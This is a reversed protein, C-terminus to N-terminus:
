AGMNRNDSWSDSSKLQRYESGSLEVSWRPRSGGKILEGAWFGLLVWRRLAEAPAGGELDLQLVELLQGIEPDSNSNHWDHILDIWDGSVSYARKRFAWMLSLTLVSARSVLGSLGPDSAEGASAEGQVGLRHLKGLYKIVYRLGGVTSALAEIDTFGHAWLGEVDRKEQVRWADGHHFAEFEQDKFLVVAHIHPYGSKQAEWVRFISAEGYRARLASIWRNYDEGVREWAEGVTLGAPDYTLSAFWARTKHHKSRDKWNFFTIDPLELLPDVRDKIRKAYVDNGRKSAKVAVWELYGKVTDYQGMILYENQRVWRLYMSVLYNIMTAGDLGSQYLRTRVPELRVKDASGEIITLEEQVEEQVGPGAISPMLEQFKVPFAGVM